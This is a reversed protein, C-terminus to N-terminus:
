NICTKRSVHFMYLRFKFNAANHDHNMVNDLVKINFASPNIAHYVSLEPLVLELLDTKPTKSLSCVVLAIQQLNHVCYEFLIVTCYVASKVFGCITPAKTECM